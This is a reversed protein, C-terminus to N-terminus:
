GESAAIAARIRERRSLISNRAADALGDGIPLDEAKVRESIKLHDDDVPVTAKSCHQNHM